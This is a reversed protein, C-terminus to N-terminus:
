AKGRPFKSIPLFDKIIETSRLLSKIGAITIAYVLTTVGYSQLNLLTVLMILLRAPRSLQRKAEPNEHVYKSGELEKRIMAKFRAGNMRGLPLAEDERDTICIFYTTTAYLNITILTSLFFFNRPEKADNPLRCPPTNDYSREVENSAISSVEDNATSTEFKRKMIGDKTEQRIFKIISILADKMNEVGVEDDIMYEVEEEMDESDCDSETGPQNPDFYHAFEQIPDPTPTSKGFYTPLYSKTNSIHNVRKEYELYEAITMDENKKPTQSEQTLRLYQEITLDEIDVEDIIDGQSYISTLFFSLM